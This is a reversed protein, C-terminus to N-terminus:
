NYVSLSGADAFNGCIEISFGLKKSFAEEKNVFVIESQRAPAHFRWDKRNNQICCTPVPFCKFVDDFSSRISCKKSHVYLLADFLAFYKKSM